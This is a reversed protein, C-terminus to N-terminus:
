VKLVKALRNTPFLDKPYIGVLHIKYKRALEFKKAVLEDYRKIVGSLGFFEIWCDKITFDARMSSAEPYPVNREHQINRSCLWDDIIKEAFSDCKHGDKAIFKKAFLVPNPEFGAITIANNWNGFRDRAANYHAYERKVPIRDNEQYFGQIEGIIQKESIKVIRPRTRLFKAYCKRSCYKSDGHFQKRCIECNKIKIRLTNNFIASCSTSCFMRM